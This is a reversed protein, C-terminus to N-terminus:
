PVARGLLAFFLGAILLFIGIFGRLISEKGITEPPIALIACASVILLGGLVLFIRRRILRRHAVQEFTPEPKM